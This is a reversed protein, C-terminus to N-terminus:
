PRPAGSRRLRSREGLLGSPQVLAGGVLRLLGGVLGHQWASAIAADDGIYFTIARQSVAFIDTGTFAASAAGASPPRGVNANIAARGDANTQSVMSGDALGLTVDLDQVPNGNRASGPTADTVRGELKVTDGPYGRVAGTWTMLTPRRLLAITGTTTRGAFAPPIADISSTM